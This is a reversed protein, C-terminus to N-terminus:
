IYISGLQEQKSGCKPQKRLSANGNWQAANCIEQWTSMFYCHTDTDDDDDDDDDDDGDGDGDGDDDDVDDDDDVYDDWNVDM